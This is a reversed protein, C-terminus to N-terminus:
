VLLYIEKKVLEEVNIPLPDSSALRAAWALNNIYTQKGIEDLKGYLFELCDVSSEIHQHDQDFESKIKKSVLDHLDIGVAKLVLVLNDSTLDSHGNLFRNLQSVPMGIKESIQSQTRGTTKVLMAIKEGLSKRSSM